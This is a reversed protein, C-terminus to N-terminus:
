STEETLAEAEDIMSTGCHKCFRADLDNQKDCGPCRRHKALPDSSQGNADAEENASEVGDNATAEDAEDTEPEAVAAPEPPAEVVAPKTKKRKKTEPLLGAKVLRRQLLQEARKRAPEHEGELQQMLRKAQERYRQSLEAYDEESIKGVSREYKLDNLARLLARKQEEEASPAGLTLAEELTLPSEGALGQVSSWFLGIVLLLAILALVMLAPPWGGWFGFGSAVAVAFLPVAWRLHPSRLVRELM